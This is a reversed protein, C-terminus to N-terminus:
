VVAPQLKPGLSACHPYGTKASDYHAMLIVHRAGTGAEAVLNRSEGKPVLADLPHGLGSFQTFFWSAGMLAIVLGAWPSAWSLLLGAGMGLAAGIVEWSYTRPSRFPEVRVPHGGEELTRRLFAAAQAEERTTSGRHPFAALGRLVAGLRPANM